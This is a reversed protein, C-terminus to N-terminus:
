GCGWHQVRCKEAAATFAAESNTFFLDGQADGNVYYLWNGAAPHVAATMASEGPSAIPTPPLGDNRYTNYPSDITSYIVKTPDLHKQKAAYASTADIQLPKRAAIRNLIVRAVKPYDAAVKAEKEAISAIILAQYPTIKLAKADATFGTSRAHDTFQTVMQQLADGVSTGPDFSYTAPYLFGEVSGPSASGSAYGQPFGLNGVDAIGATVAAASVGLAKAMPGAVDFVTAGEFVVVQNSLRAGPDLMLALASKASMHSRMKYTGPSIDQSRSDHAAANTFARVSAVVGKDHLSTGIAKAGDNARVVVSVTGTGAGAYDNPHYRNEYVRYGGYGLVVVVTVVLAALLLFVRRHRRHRRRHKHDHRDMRRSTRSPLLHEGSPHEIAGLDASEDDHGFLLAHPDPETLSERERQTM